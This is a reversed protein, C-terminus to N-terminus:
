GGSIENSTATEQGNIPMESNQEVITANREDPTEVKIELPLVRFHGPLIGIFM